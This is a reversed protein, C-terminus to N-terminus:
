APGGRSISPSTVPREYAGVACRRVEEAPSAGPKLPRLSAYTTSPRCGAGIAPGTAGYLGAQEAGLLAPASAVRHALAAHSTLPSAPTYARPFTDLAQATSFAIRQGPGTYGIVPLPQFPPGIWLRPTSLRALTTSAVKLRPSPPPPERRGGRKLESKWAENTAFGQARAKKEAATMQRVLAKGAAVRREQQRLQAASKLPIRFEDLYDPTLNSLRGLWREMHLVGVEHFFNEGRVLGLMHTFAEDALPKVQNTWLDAMKPEHAPAFLRTRLAHLFEPRSIGRKGHRDAISEPTLTSVTFGGMVRIRTPPSRRPPAGRARGAAPSGAAGPEKNQSSPPAALPEIVGRRSEPCWQTVINTATQGSRDAARRLMVRLVELSSWDIEDLGLAGPPPELAMSERKAKPGTQPAAIMEKVIASMIIRPKAGALLRACHIANRACRIAFRV